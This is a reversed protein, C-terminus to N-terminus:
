RCEITFEASGDEAVRTNALKVSAYSSAFVSDARLVSVLSMVSQMRDQSGTPKLECTVVLMNASAADSQNRPNVVLSTIRSNPPLLEGLRWMRDRWNRTSSAFRELQTLQSGNLRWDVRSPTTVRLRAAQREVISARQALSACNLGYFGLLVTFVGFYAVWV